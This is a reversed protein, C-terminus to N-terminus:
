IEGKKM